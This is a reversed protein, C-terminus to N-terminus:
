FDYTWLLFNFTYNDQFNVSGFIHRDYSLFYHGHSHKKNLFVTTNDWLASWLGGSANDNMWVLHVCRM